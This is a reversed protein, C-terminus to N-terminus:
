GWQSYEVFFSKPLFQKKGLDKRRKFFFNFSVALGLFSIM